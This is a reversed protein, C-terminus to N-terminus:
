TAPTLFSISLPGATVEIAQDFGHAPEAVTPCTDTVVGSGGYRTADSELLPRWEGAVPVGIRHGSRPVPTFNAVVLVPPADPAQRLFAYVSNAADDGIVWRFGDDRCDGVHLAPHDRYLRNLAAVYDAV